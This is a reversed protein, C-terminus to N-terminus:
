ELSANRPLTEARIVRNKGADKAAAMAQDARGVVTSLAEGPARLALGCSFTILTREQKYMFFHKTLSRQLRTMLDVATAEDTDPLLLVFEEGSYRAIRDQPRLHDKVVGVLHRLAADGAVNGLRANLAKFNDVDVLAACMPEDDKDAEAARHDFTTELARRNMVGTLLDERTLRAMATLQRGQDRVSGDAREVRQRASQLETHATATTQQMNRTDTMLDHLVTGLSGIDDAQDIQRDYDQLKSNYADTTSALKGLREIFTHALTKLDNRAAEVTDKMEVQKTMLARMANEADAISGETLPEAFVRQMIDFQSRLWDDGSLLQHMNEVLLRLPKLLSLKMRQENGADDSVLQSLAEISAALERAAAADRTERAANALAHVRTTLKADHALAAAMPGDLTKALGSRLEAAIDSPTEHASLPEPTAHASAAGHKWQEIANHLRLFVIKPDRASTGLATELSKRKRARTWGAHESDWQRFLEALQEKWSMPLTPATKSVAENLSDVLKSIAERAHGWDQSKLASDVSKIAPARSPTNKPLRETADRLKSDAADAVDSKTGAIDRYIKRYNDPTPPVRQTALVRLTERAIATPNKEGLHKPDHM